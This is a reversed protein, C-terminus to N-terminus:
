QKNGGILRDALQEATVNYTGNQIQQRLEAVRDARVDPAAEVAELARAKQRAENSIEVTDGSPTSTQNAGYTQARGVRGAQRVPAQEGVSDLDQLSRNGVPEIRM